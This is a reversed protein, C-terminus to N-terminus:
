KAKRPRGRKKPKSLDTITNKLKTIEANKEILLREKEGQLRKIKWSDSEGQYSMSHGNPCFFSRKTSVLREQLEKHIWFPVGCGDACCTEQVIDINMKHTISNLCRM